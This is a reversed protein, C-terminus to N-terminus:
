HASERRCSTVILLQCCLSCLLLLFSLCQSLSLRQESSGPTRTETNTRHEMERHVAKAAQPLLQMSEYAAEDFFLAQSEGGWPSSSRWAGVAKSATTPADFEVFVRVSENPPTGLRKRQEHSLELVVVNLVAGFAAAAASVAAKHGPSVANPAATGLLLVM